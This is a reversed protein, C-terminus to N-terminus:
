PRYLDERTWAIDNNTGRAFVVQFLQLLGTRFSAISGALYLRWTRVFREDFRRAIEDRHEEFRALWHELTRAYHLRLNEVDLVSLDAPELLGVMERLTPPYAGPFIRRAVFPGFEIPRNRGISHLLGRGHPALTRDIVRRLDRYHEPGVHELMGVSVFADYTGVLNRYDDDVFEVRDDLGEARARARAWAIQETSVNCARVTVGHRRALHLALAGWGCGAELVREGPHLRLKRAVHEMKALQADELTATPTPFYACTYVMERDLWLRYFDNGLDYHHHANARARNLSNGRRRAWRWWAGAQAVWGDEPARCVAVLLEQLDGEIVLRGDAYADAFHLESEPGLLGLLTGHDAIRIRAIPPRAASQVEDGNPLVIGLPVHAVWALLRRALAREIPAWWTEVPGAEASPLRPPSSRTAGPVAPEGIAHQEPRVAFSM